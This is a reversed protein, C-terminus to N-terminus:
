QHDHDTCSVKQCGEPAIVWHPSSFPASAEVGDSEEASKQNKFSIPQPGAESGRSWGMKTVVYEDIVQVAFYVTHWLPWLMILVVAENLRVSSFPGAIFDLQKGSDM